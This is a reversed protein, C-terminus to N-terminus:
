KSGYNRLIEDSSKGARLLDLIENRGEKKAYEIQGRKDREANERQFYAWRAAEDSSAKVVVDVADKIAPSKAAAKMFDEENEANIFYLWDCLPTGDEKQPLKPLEMVHTEEADGFYIGASKDYQKFCHHYRTKDPDNKVCEFNTIFILVVKKLVTYDEGSRLQETVMKSKYWIARNEIKDQSAVQIEIDIVNDKTRLRIDLIGYKDLDYEQKLFPNLFEIGFDESPLDLVAQLFSKIINEHRQDGFILKFLFDNKPHLLELGDPNITKEM